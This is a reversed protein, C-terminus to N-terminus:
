FGIGATLNVGWHEINANDGKFAYYGGVGLTIPYDMDFTYGLNGNLRHELQAPRASSDLNLGAVNLGPGTQGGFAGVAMAGGNAPDQEPAVVAFKNDNTTNGYSISEKQKWAPAYSVGVLFGSNGYELGLNGRVSSNPTVSTSVTSNNAVPVFQQANVVTGVAATLYYQSWNNKDSLTRTENAQFGYRYDASLHLGIHQHGDHWLRGDVAGGVGLEWHGGNGYIPEFLYKGNATNGTPITLGINLGATWDHGRVFDYGLAVDIDAIGTATQKGAILANKLKAQSGQNGGAHIPGAGNAAVEFNGAFFQPLAAQLRAQDAAAAPSVVNSFTLNVNNEVREVPLSVSLHLGELIKGLCQKYALELGYSTTKPALNVTAFTTAAGALRGINNDFDHILFGGNVDVGHDGAATGWGVKFSDKDAVGFYKGLAKADRSESYFGSVLFNGGFRDHGKATALARTSPNDLLVSAAQARPSSLFNQNTYASVHAASVALATVLLRKLMNNMYAKEM